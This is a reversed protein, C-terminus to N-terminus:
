YTIGNQNWYCQLFKSFNLIFFLVVTIFVKRKNICYLIWKHFVVKIDTFNNFRTNFGVTRKLLLVSRTKYQFTKNQKNWTSFSKDLILKPGVGIGSNAWKTNPRSLQEWLSSSKMAKQTSFMIIPPPPENEAPPGPFPM